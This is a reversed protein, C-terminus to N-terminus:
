GSDSPDSMEALGPVKRTRYFEYIEDVLRLQDRRGRGCFHLLGVLSRVAYAGRSFGFM